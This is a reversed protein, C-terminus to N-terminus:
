HRPREFRRRDEETPAVDLNFRLPTIAVQGRALAEIDGNSHPAVVRLGSYEHELAGGDRRAFFPGYCTQTVGTLVRETELELGPPMNISVLPAGGPMGQELVEEVVERTLAAALSWQPALDALDRHQSWREYDQPHMQLSSAVAPIGSLMAEVAAGVTGSSLLFSLGANAGINVGSVVLRPPTPCFNHVGANACDAPSGDLTWVPAGDRYVQQLELRSFRSLTKSSWSYERSPVLARVPGIEQLEALLPLLAPSDIGDDNTVLVWPDGTEEIM